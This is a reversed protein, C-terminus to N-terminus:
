KQLPSNNILHKHDYRHCLRKDQAKIYCRRVEFTAGGVSYVFYSPSFLSDKGYLKPYGSRGYSYSSVGILSNVM